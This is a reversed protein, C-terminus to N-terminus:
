QPLSYGTQKNLCRSHIFITGTDLRIVLKYLNSHTVGMHTEMM